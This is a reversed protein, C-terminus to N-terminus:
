AAPLTRATPDNKRVHTFCAPSVHHRESIKEAILRFAEPDALVELAIIKRTKIPLGKLSASLKNTHPERKKPAATDAVPPAAAGPMKSEDERIAMLMQDPSMRESKAGCLRKLLAAVLGKQIGPETKLAAVEV